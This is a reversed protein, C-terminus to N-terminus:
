KIGLETWAMGYGRGRKVMGRIYGFDIVASDKNRLVTVGDKVREIEQGDVTICSGVGNFRGM